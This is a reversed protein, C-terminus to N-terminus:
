PTLPDVSVGQLFGIRAPPWYRFVAQGVINELPVGGWARSDYSNASNDGFVFIHGEPVEFQRERNSNSPVYRNQFFFPPDTLPDENRYLHYDHGIRIQDGPLGVVRKIYYEKGPKDIEEIDNTRFVVVDGPDIPKFWYICKVVFIRDGKQLTNMMSSSPISYAELIFTQVLLVIIIALYFAEGNEYTRQNRHIHKVIRRGFSFYMLKSALQVYLLRMVM